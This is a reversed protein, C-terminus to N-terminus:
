HLSKSGLAGLASGISLFQPRSLVHAGFRLSLVIKVWFRELSSGRPPCAIFRQFFLTQAVYAGPPGSLLVAPVALSCRVCPCPHRITQLVFEKLYYM